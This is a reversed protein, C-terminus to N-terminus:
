RRALSVGAPFMITLLAIILLFNFEIGNEGGGVVYWGNPLHVMFIGTILIVITIICALRVYKETMLCVVTAAHSLKIAWALVPGFPSFGVNNLYDYGFSNVGGDLMGPISHMILIISVGLRLFFTNNLSNM